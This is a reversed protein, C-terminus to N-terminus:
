TLYVIRYGKVNDQLEKKDMRRNFGNKDAFRGRWPDNFLLHGQSVCEGHEIVDPTYAVVSVYHSPQKLCIQVAYGLDLSATIVRWSVGLKFHAKVRFVDWVAVPYYQPVRNMPIKLGKLDRVRRLKEANRPDNFYDMLVAEPQPRFEGPCQIEVSHGMSAIAGVCASPGCTELVHGLGVLRNYEETPNNEQTYYHERDNWFKTGRYEM